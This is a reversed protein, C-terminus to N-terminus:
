GKLGGREKKVSKSVRGGRKIFGADPESINLYRSFNIITPFPFAYNKNNQM